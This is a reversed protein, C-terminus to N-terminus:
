PVVASPDKVLATDEYFKQVEPKPGLLLLVSAMDVAAEM